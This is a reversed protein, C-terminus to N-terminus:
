PSRRGALVLADSQACEDRNPARRGVLELGVPLARAADCGEERNPMRRGAQEVPAAQAGCGRGPATRLAGLAALPADAAACGPASHHHVIPLPQAAVSAGAPAAGM